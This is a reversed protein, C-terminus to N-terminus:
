CFRLDKRLIEGLFVGFGFVYFWGGWAGSGSGQSNITLLESTQKYLFKQYSIRSCETLVTYVLIVLHM